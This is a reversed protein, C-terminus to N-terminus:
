PDISDENRSRAYRRLQDRMWIQRPEWTELAWLGQNDRKLDKNPDFQGERLIKERWDYGRDVIRGHFHHMMFANVYGVDRKVWRECLEQRHKWYDVYNKSYGTMQPFPLDSILMHALYWDGGGTIGVDGLQSILQWASINAAWALGPSGWRNPYGKVNSKPYPSGYKVYNHMFSPSVGGAYGDKHSGLPQLDIDLHQLWSWAQVFEHHQLEHWIEAFWEKMSQGIPECDADMWLVKKKGPWLRLGHSIGLNILNEKHWFEEHTRLRLHNLEVTNTCHFARDGFALEVLVHDTGSGAVKKAIKDFLHARRRFRATNSIVMVVFFDSLDADFM